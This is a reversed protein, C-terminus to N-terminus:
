RGVGIVKLFSRLRKVLKVRFAFKYAVTYLTDGVINAIPLQLAHPFPRVNPQFLDQVGWSLMFNTPHTLPMEDSCVLDRHHRSIERWLVAPPLSEKRLNILLSGREAHAIVNRIYVRQVAPHCESFACNSIMLDSQVPRDLTTGDVLNVREFQEPRLTEALFRGALQIAEPLDILTYSAPSFADFAVKCLGGYGGGIEVIHMGDLSGFKEHLDGLNRAYRITSASQQGHHGYDFLEPSGVGNSSAFRPLLKAIEPNRETLAALHVAGDARSFHELVRGYDPNNPSRFTSFVTDDNAALACFDPYGKRDSASTRQRM